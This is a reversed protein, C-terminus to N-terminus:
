MFSLFNLLLSSRNIRALHTCSARDLKKEVDVWHFALRTQTGQLPLFYHRLLFWQCEDYLHSVLSLQNFSAEANEFSKAKESQLLFISDTAKVFTTLLKFPSNKAVQQTVNQFVSVCNVLASEPAGM